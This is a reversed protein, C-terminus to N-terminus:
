FGNRLPSAGPYFLLTCNREPISPDSNRRSAFDVMIRRTRRQRLARHRRAHDEEQQRRRSAAACCSGATMDPM